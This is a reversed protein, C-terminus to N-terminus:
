EGDGSGRSGTNPSPGSQYSTTTPSGAPRLDITAAAQGTLHHDIIVLSAQALGSQLKELRREFSFTGDDIKDAQRDGDFLVGDEKAKNVLEAASAQARTRDGTATLEALKLRRIADGRQRSIRAKAEIEASQETHYAPAAAPPPHIAEVIVAMVEIGLSEADLASQLSTRFDNTFTERSEGIVDLLRHHVFHRVLLKGAMACILTEPNTARYAARMAAEDSLGQRYVIRMDINVLQFSQRGNTDSAILYGAESPHSRDWLRDAEAPPIDEASGTTVTQGVDTQRSESVSDNTSFVIPVEHIIGLEAARMIGLPWPLHLHLGPGFVGVPVGLREYIARQELGVATVGTVAWGAVVMGVVLPPILRRIFALAWSRSLDIGFQRGIAANIAAADPVRLTLFGAMVSDAVARRSQVPGSPLFLMALGRIATEMAVMAVMTALVRDLYIAGDFGLWRIAGAAALGLCAALPVRLLRSLQPAEPLRSPPINTYIRELVLLTFSALGLIGGVIENQGATTTVESPTDWGVVIIRVAAAAFM